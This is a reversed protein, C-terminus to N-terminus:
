GREEFPVPHDCDHEDQDHQSENSDQTISKQFVHPLLRSETGVLTFIVSQVGLSPLSWPKSRPRGALRCNIMGAALASNAPHKLRRTPRTPVTNARPVRFPSRQALPRRSPLRRLNASTQVRSILRGERRHSPMSTQCIPSHACDTPHKSTERSTITPTPCLTQPHLDRATAV